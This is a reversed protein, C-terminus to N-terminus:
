KLFERSLIPEIMLEERFPEVLDGFNFQDGQVGVQSLIEQCDDLRSNTVDRSFLPTIRLAECKGSVAVYENRERRQEIATFQRVVQRDFDAKRGIM